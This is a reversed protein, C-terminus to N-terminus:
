NFRFSSFYTDVIERSITRESGTVIVQYVRREKAVFRAFLVRPQGGTAADAAGSAVIEIYALTGTNANQSQPMTAVKEQRVTGRINNVMATKMAALSAQAQPAEPLEATGVAFTVGDVETATMTMATKIGDLDIQRTFSAPKAPMAIVYAANDSRIERWDFKPSCATLMAFLALLLSRPIINMSLFTAATVSRNHYMARYELRAPPEHM